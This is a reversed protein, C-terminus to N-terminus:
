SKGAGAVAARTRYVEVPRRRVVLEAGRQARAELGRALCRTVGREVTSVFASLVLPSSATEFDRFFGIYQDEALPIRLEWLGKADHSGFNEFTQGDLSLRVGKFNFERSGALIKAWCEQVGSSRELAKEFDMLRTESDIILRFRGRLFMRGATVFEAYELHRIGVCAAGCFVIVILGGFQNHLASAALSLIAVLTCIAYMTLVASRPSLGRDLLKHHIHGRDAQFIPKNRLYRRSISLLVDLLPISLALLPATLAVLTVSKESWLAGFCGLLFGILLSGSDGLFVSARNFNYRLFGLLCGALPMTALALPLNGQTLAAILMTVTAVLGVGAALGDMGDILNFANTCGILWVVTLFFGLGPWAHFGHLMQIDVHIGAFYALVSAGGIGILKQWATLGVLDDVVGTLFVVSGVLTLALINPLAKHLVYTYSFPLSFAIAFTAVYAVVIAIGGVRPVPTTHNKRGGDPLDLFFRGIGDRVIPTLALAMLISLVGLTLILFM